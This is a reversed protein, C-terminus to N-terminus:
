MTSTVDAGSLLHGLTKEIETRLKIQDDAFAVGFGIPRGGHSGMPNIWVVTGTFITPELDDPLQVSATISQGIEVSKQSIFFLAGNKIFPMYSGYLQQTNRFEIGVEVMVSSRTQTNDIQINVAGM